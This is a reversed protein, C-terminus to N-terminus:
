LKGNKKNHQFIGSIKCIIKKKNALFPIKKNKKKEERMRCLPRTNLINELTMM